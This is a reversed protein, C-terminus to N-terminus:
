NYRCIPNLEPTHIPGAVRTGGLTPWEAVARRPIASQYNFPPLRLMSGLSGASLLLRGNGKDNWASQAVVSFGILLPNAPVVPGLASRTLYLHPIQGVSTNNTRSVFIFTPASFDVFMKECTVGPLVFGAPNAKIGAVTVVPHLRPLGYAEIRISM